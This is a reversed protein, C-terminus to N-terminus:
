NINLDARLRELQSRVTADFVLGGIRAQVGAIVSPDVAVDPVIKKGTRAELGRVIDALAPPSLAKASLITARVRGVKNDVEDRFSRAIIPLDAIRDKDVLLRVFSSTMDDLKHADAIGKLVDKRQSSSFGPNLMAQRFDAQGTRRDLLAALASLEEEVKSLRDQSAGAEPSVLALILARAYRRGVTGEQM